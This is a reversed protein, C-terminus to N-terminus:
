VMVNFLGSRSPDDVGTHVTVAIVGTSPLSQITEIWGSAPKREEAEGNWALFPRVSITVASRRDPYRHHSPIVRAQNPLFVLGSERVYGYREPDEREVQEFRNQNLRDTSLTRMSPVRRKDTVM